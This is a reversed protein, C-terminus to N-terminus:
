YYLLIKGGKYKSIKKNFVVAINTNLQLLMKLRM